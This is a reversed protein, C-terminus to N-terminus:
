RLCRPDGRGQVAAAEDAALFDGLPRNLLGGVAQLVHAWSASNAFLMGAEDLTGGRNRYGLVANRPGDGLIPWLHGRAVEPRMHTLLVRYPCSAPFLRESVERPALAAQEWRDRPARFRGPEQLYILRWACGAASL